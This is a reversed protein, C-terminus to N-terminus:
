RVSMDLPRDPHTEPTPRPPPGSAGRPVRKALKRRQRRSLMTKAAARGGWGNVSPLSSGASVHWLSKSRPGHVRGAVADAAVAGDPVLTMDIHCAHGKTTWQSMDYPSVGASDIVSDKVGATYGEVIDLVRNM